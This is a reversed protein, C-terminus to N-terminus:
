AGRSSRKALRVLWHVLVLSGAIAASFVSGIAFEFPWLNHSTPDRRTDTFVDWGILLLPIIPLFALYRWPPALNRGVLTAVGAAIAAPLFMVIAMAVDSLIANLNM